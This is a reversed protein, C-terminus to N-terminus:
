VNWDLGHVELVVVELPCEVARGAYATASSYVYDIANYVIKAAVPNLHVYDVKQLTFKVTVLEVPHSDQQWVQFNTNNPNHRGANGFARM